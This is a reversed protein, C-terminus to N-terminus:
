TQKPSKTNLFLGLLPVQRRNSIRPCIQVRSYYRVCTESNERQIFSCMEQYMIEGSVRRVMAGILLSV